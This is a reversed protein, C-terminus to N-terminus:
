VNESTTSNTKINPDLTIRNFRTQNECAGGLQLSSDVQNKSGEVQLLDELEAPAEGGTSAISTKRLAAYSKKAEEFAKSVQKNRVRRRRDRRMQLKAELSEREQHEKAARRQAALRPRLSSLGILAM